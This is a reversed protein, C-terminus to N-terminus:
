QRLTNVITQLTSKITQGIEDSAEKLFLDDFAGSFAFLGYLTSDLYCSNQHGQIGKGGGTHVHEIVQEPPQIFRKLMISDNLNFQGLATYAFKFIVTALYNYICLKLCIICFNHDYIGYLSM